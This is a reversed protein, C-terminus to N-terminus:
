NLFGASPPLDTPLDPPLLVNPIHFFHSSRAELWVIASCKMGIDYLWLHRFIAFHFVCLVFVMAWPAFLSTGKTCIREDFHYGIYLRYVLGLHKGQRHVKPPFPRTFVIPVCYKLCTWTSRKKSRQRLINTTIQASFRQVTWLDKEDLMKPSIGAQWRTDLFALDSSYACSGLWCDISTLCFFCVLLVLSWGVVLINVLFVDLLM